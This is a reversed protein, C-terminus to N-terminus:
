KNLIKSITFVDFGNEKVMNMAKQNEMIDPGWVNHNYVYPTIFWKEINMRLTIETTISDEIKFNAPITLTFWNQVFFYKGDDDTPRNGNEDQYQGVGLHFNFARRFQVTDKWFGNLKMYHYGGSDGGLSYPWFMQSEPPNVFMFPINKEGRFGFVFSISEYDGVDVSDEPKWTFSSPIDTLTIAKLV